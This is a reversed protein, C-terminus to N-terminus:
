RKYEIVVPIYDAKEEALDVMNSQVIDFMGQVNMVYGETNGMSFRIKKDEVHTLDIERMNEVSKRVTYKIGEVNDKGFDLTNLAKDLLVERSILKTIKESKVTVKAM